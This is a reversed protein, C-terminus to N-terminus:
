TVENPDCVYIGIEAMRRQIEAVYNLFEVKSMRSSRRVPRLRKRGFGEVTEWGYIEGLFYEHLDEANWGALQGSALIDPYASGWLFRNQASSRTSKAEAFEVIVSKGPLAALLVSALRKVADERGVSPLVALM